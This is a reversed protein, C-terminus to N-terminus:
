HHPCGPDRLEGRMWGVAQSALQEVDASRGDSILQSLAAALLEAARREPQTKLRHWQRDDISLRRHLDRATELAEEPWDPRQVGMTRNAITVLRSGDQRTPLASGDSVGNPDGTAACRTWASAAPPTDSVHRWYCGNLRQSLVSAGADTWPVVTAQVEVVQIAAGLASPFATRAIVAAPLAPNLRAQSSEM